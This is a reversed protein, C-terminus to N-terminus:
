GQARESAQAGAGAGAGALLLDARVFITFPKSFAVSREFGVEGASTLKFGTLRSSPAKLQM